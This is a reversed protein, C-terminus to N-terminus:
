RTVLLPPPEDSSIKKKKNSEVKPETHMKSLYRALKTIVAM